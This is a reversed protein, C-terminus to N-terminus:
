KTDGKIIGYDAWNPETKTMYLNPDMERQIVGLEGITCTAQVIEWLLIQEYDSFLRIDKYTEYHQREADSEFQKGDNSIFEPEDKAWSRIKARTTKTIQCTQVLMVCTFLVCVFTGITLLGYFIGGDSDTPEAPKSFDKM